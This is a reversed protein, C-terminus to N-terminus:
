KHHNLAQFEPSNHFSNFVPDKLLENYSIFGKKLCTKLHNLTKTLDGLQAYARALNYHPNIYDPKLSLSLNLEDIGETYNGKEIYLYGLFNHAEPILEKNLSVCKKLYELAKQREKANFYIIGLIFYAEQQQPDAAIIDNLEVIAEDLKHLKVLAKAQGLKANTNAENELEAEIYLQYAEEFKNQRYFRDARALYEVDNISNQPFLDKKHPPLIITMTNDALKWSHLFEDLPIQFIDSAYVSATIRDYGCITRLHVIRPKGKQELIQSTIVPVDHDIWWMIDEFSGKMLSVNYGLNRAYDVMDIIFGGEQTDMLYKSLEKDTTPEGWYRLVAALASPMCNNQQPVIHQIGNIIKQKGKYKAMNQEINTLYYRAKKAFDSDPNNELSQFYPVADYYRGARCLLEAVRFTAFDKESGTFNNMFFEYNVLAQDFKGLSEQASALGQYAPLYGPNIDIVKEFANEALVYNLKKLYIIGSMNWSELHDPNAAVIKDLLKLAEDYKGNDFFIKSDLIAKFYEVSGKKLPGAQADALPPLLQSFIAPCYFLPYVCLLIIGTKIKYKGYVSM